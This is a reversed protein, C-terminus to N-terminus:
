PEESGGSDGPRPITRKAEAIEEWKWNATKEGTKGSIIIDIDKGVEDKGVETVTFMFDGM